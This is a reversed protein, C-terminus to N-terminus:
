KEITVPSTTKFRLGIGGAGTTFLTLATGQDLSGSFWGVVGYLIQAFSFWFTWSTFIYKPQM